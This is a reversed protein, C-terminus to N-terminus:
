PGGLIRMLYKVESKARNWNETSFAFVTIIKVGKKFASDGIRKLNDLGALHGRLTPLGREKAWRRNGDVIIGLHVPAGNTKERM